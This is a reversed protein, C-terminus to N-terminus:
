NIKWKPQHFARLHSYHAQIEEKQASNVKACPSPFEERGGEVCQPAWVPDKLPINEEVWIMRFWVSKKLCLWMHSLPKNLQWCLPISPLRYGRKTLCHGMGMEYFTDGLADSCNETVVAGPLLLQVHSCDQKYLTCCERLENGARRRAQVRWKGPSDFMRLIFCFRLASDPIYERVVCSELAWPRGDQVLVAPAFAHRFAFTQVSSQHWTQTTTSTWYFCNAQKSRLLLWNFDRSWGNRGHNVAVDKPATKGNFDKVRILLCSLLLPFLGWTMGWAM